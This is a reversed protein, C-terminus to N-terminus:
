GPTLVVNLWMAVGRTNYGSNRSLVFKGRVSVGRTRYGCSSEVIGVRDRGQVKGPEGTAYWQKPYGACTEQSCKGGPARYFSNDGFVSERPAFFAVIGVVHM